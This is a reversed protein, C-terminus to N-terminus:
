RSKCELLASVSHHRGEAKKKFLADPKKTGQLRHTHGWLANASLANPTLCAQWLTNGKVRSERSINGCGQFRHHWNLKEILHTYYLYKFTFSQILSSEKPSHLHQAELTQGQLWNLCGLSIQSTYHYHILVLAPPKITSGSGAELALFKMQFSCSPLLIVRGRSIKQSCSWDITAM